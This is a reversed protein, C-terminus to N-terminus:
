AYTDIPFFTFEALLYPSELTAALPSKLRYPPRRKVGDNRRRRDITAMDFATYIAFASRASAPPARKRRRAAM